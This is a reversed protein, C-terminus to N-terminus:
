PSTDVGSVTAERCVELLCCSRCQPRSKCFTVAHRVLLAHFENFLDADAPLKDMFAAQLQHYSVGEDALGLRVAIRRTYADIVFVPRHDAYLLISDATEPGIGEFDLLSQRVRGLDGALLLSPKGEHQKLVHAVLGHLRRAKQNYYRSPKVLRALSDPDIRAMEPLSLKGNESLAILAMTVNRWSTNQTLVAGVIIEWRQDETLDDNTQHLDYVPSTAGPPTTPWWGQAGFHGLLLDFLEIHSVTM